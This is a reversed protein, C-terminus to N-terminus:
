VVRVIRKAQPENSDYRQKQECDKERARALRAELNFKKEAIAKKRQNREHEVVWDPELTM